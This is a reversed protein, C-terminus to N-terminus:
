RDRSTIRWCTREWAPHHNEFWVLETAREDVAILDKKGDKNLDAAVLQYGYKLENTIVHERFRPLDQAYLNTGALLWALCGWVWRRGLRVSFRIARYTAASDTTKM